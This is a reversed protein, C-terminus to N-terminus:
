EENECPSLCMPCEGKLNPVSCATTNEGAGACNNTVFYACFDLCEDCETYVVDMDPMDAKKKSETVPKKNTENYEYALLHRAQRKQVDDHMLLKRTSNGAYPGAGGGGYEMMGDSDYVVFGCTPACAVCIDEGTVSDFCTSTTENDGDYDFDNDQLLSRRRHAIEEELEVDDTMGLLRRREMRRRRRTSAAAATTGKQVGAVGYTVVTGDPKTVSLQTIENLQTTTMSSAALLAGPQTVSGTGMPTSKGKVTTVGTSSTETEKSLEVVAFVLGTIAGLMAGMLLLLIAALITLRKVTKKSEIYLEAGRALEMPAVTGDGDVDFAKLTPQIEKPLGAIAISGEANAKKMQSYTTFIETLEELELVGNSAEGTANDIEHLIGHLQTPFIDFPLSGPAGAAGLHAAAQKLEAVDIEGNKNIDLVELQTAVDTPLKSLVISQAM